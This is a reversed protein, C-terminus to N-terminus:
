AVEVEVDDGGMVENDGWIVKPSRWTWITGGMVENGGWSRLQGGFGYRGGAM